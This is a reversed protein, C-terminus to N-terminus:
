QRELKWTEALKGAIVQWNYKELIQQRASSVMRQAFHRDSFYLNFADVLAPINDVEVVQGNRLHQVVDTMGGSRTCIVPTGAASAELLVIGFGEVQGNPIEKSLLCFVDLAALYEWKSEESIDQLWTLRNDIGLEAARKQLSILLPGDGIILGHLNPALALAELFMSVNKSEVLRNVCGVLPVDEPLGLKQRLRKKM